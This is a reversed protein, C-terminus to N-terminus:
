DWSKWKLSSIQPFVTIKLLYQLELIMKMFWFMKPFYFDNSFSVEAASSTSTVQGAHALRNLLEQTLGNSALPLPDVNKRIFRDALSAFCKLAGDGVHHDDKNTLLSSLCEVCEQLFYLPNLLIEDIFNSSTNSTKGYIQSWYSVWRQIEKFLPTYFLGGNASKLIYIARPSTPTNSGHHHWARKRGVGPPLFSLVIRLDWLKKM